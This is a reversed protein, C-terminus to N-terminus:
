PGEGDPAPGAVAQPLTWRSGESVAVPRNPSEPPAEAHGRGEITEPRTM